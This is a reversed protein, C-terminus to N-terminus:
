WHKKGAIIFDSNKRPANKLMRDRFDGKLPKGPMRTQLDRESGFDENLESPLANIFEDMIQKAQKRVKDTDIM